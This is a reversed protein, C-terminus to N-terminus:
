DEVESEFDGRALAQLQKPAHALVASYGTRVLDPNDELKSPIFTRSRPAIIKGEADRPPHQFRSLHAIAEERSRCFLEREHGDEAPVPLSAPLPRLWCRKTCTADARNLQPM